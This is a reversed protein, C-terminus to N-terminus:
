KIHRGEVGRQLRDRTRKHLWMLAEELKTLAIANERCPFPGKQLGRLRDILIALLVEHTIGNVGHELPSGHQFLLVDRSKVHTYGSPSQCSPNTATDFGTIEYRHNAGGAGPADNVVITIQDNAVNVQHDTLVRGDVGTNDHEQITESTNAVATDNAGVINDLWEMTGDSDPKTKKVADLEDNILFGLAANLHGVAEKENDTQASKHYLHHILVMLLANPTVGNVGETEPTGEQFAIDLKYLGEKDVDGDEQTLLVDAVTYRETNFTENDYIADIILRNGYLNKMSFGELRESSTSM